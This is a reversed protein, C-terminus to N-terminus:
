RRAPFYSHIYGDDDIMVPSNFDEYVCLGRSRHQQTCTNYGNTPLVNYVPMGCGHVTYESSCDSDPFKTSHILSLPIHIFKGVTKIIDDATYGGIEDISVDLRIDNGIRIDM